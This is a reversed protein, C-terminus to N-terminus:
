QAIQKSHQFFVAQARNKGPPFENRRLRRVRIYAASFFLPKQYFGYGDFM